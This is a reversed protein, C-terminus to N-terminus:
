CEFVSFHLLLRCTSEFLGYILQFVNFLANDLLQVALFDSSGHFPEDEDKSGIMLCLVKSLQDGVFAVLVDVDNTNQNLILLFTIINAQM